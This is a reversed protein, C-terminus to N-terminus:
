RDEQALAWWIASFFRCTKGSAAAARFAPNVGQERQLGGTPSAGCQFARTPLAPTPPPTPRFPGNPGGAETGRHGGVGATGWAARPSPALATRNEVTVRGRHGGV